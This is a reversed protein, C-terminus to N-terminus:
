PTVTGVVHLYINGGANNSKITITKHFRGVLDTNYVVTIESSQGPQIPDHPCSGVTCSCSGDCHVIILPSKGANTFKVKRTKDSGRAITGYNVTDSELKLVPADTDQAFISTGTVLLFFFLIKKM